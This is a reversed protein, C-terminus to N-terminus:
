SLSRRHRARRTEGCGLLGPLGSSSGEVGIASRRLVRPLANKKKPPLCIEICSVCICSLCGAGLLHDDCLFLHDQCSATTSVYKKITGELKRQGLEAELRQQEFEFQHGLEDFLSKLMSEMAVHHEQLWLCCFFAFHCFCVVLSGPGHGFVLCGVCLVWLSLIWWCWCCCCCCCCRCRKCRFVVPFLKLALVQHCLCISHGGCAAVCCM